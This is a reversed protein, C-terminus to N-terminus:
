KIGLATVVVESLAGTNQLNVSLMASSGVKVEFPEFGVASVVVTSNPSANISFNGNADASVGTNEGKIKITAFPIPDGKADKVQGTVVRTQGSAISVCLALVALLSLMKRM